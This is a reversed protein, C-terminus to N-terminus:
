GFFHHFKLDVFTLPDPSGNTLFFFLSLLYRLNAELDLSKELDEDFIDVLKVDLM